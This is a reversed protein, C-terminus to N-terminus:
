NRECFGGYKDENGGDNPRKPRRVSRSRPWYRRTKSLAAPIRRNAASKVVAATPDRQPRDASAARHKAQIQAAVIV